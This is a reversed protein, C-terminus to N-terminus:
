VAIGISRDSHCSCVNGAVLPTLHISVGPPWWALWLFLPLHLSWSHCAVFSFSEAMALNPSHTSSPAHGQRALWRLRTLPSLPRSKVTPWGPGTYCISTYPLIHIVPAWSSAGVPAVPQGPSPPPLDNRTPWSGSCCTTAGMFHTATAM